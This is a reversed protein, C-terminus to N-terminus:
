LSVCNYSVLLIVTLLDPLFVAARFGRVPIERPWKKRSTKKRAVCSMCFSLSRCLHGNLLSLVRGKDDLIYYSNVENQRWTIKRSIM